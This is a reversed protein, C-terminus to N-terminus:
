RQEVALLGAPYKRREADAQALMDERHVAAAHEKNAAGTKEQWLKAVEKMRQPATANQHRRKFAPDMLTNKVFHNYKSM